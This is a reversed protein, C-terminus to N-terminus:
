GAASGHREEPRAPAQAQALQAARMRDAEDKVEVLLRAQAVISAYEAAFAGFNFAMAVAAMALHWLSPWAFQDAGAGLWATFALFAMGAFEFPFARRKNRVAQAYVWDPLHYVRVVEKVWRGTGLFYTFVVSHVLAGTMVALLGVLFHVDHWVHAAEGPGGGSEGAASLGVVFSAILLSGSAVALGLFIRNM